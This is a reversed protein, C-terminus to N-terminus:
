KMAIKGYFLNDYRFSYLKAKYKAKNIKANCCSLEITPASVTNEKLKPLYDNIYNEGLLDKCFPCKISRNRSIQKFFGCDEARIGLWNGYCECHFTESKHHIYYKEGINIKEMCFKCVKEMINVKLKKINSKMYIISSKPNEAIKPSSLETSTM